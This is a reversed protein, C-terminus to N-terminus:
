GACSRDERPNGSPILSRYLTYLRQGFADFGFRDVVTRRISERDFSFGNLAIHEMASAIAATDDPPVLVGSSRDVFEVPATCNPAVVPLGASMAEAIVLGFSEHRSPYVFFDSAALLDAFQAKTFAGPLEVRGNLAPTTDVFTKIADREPGEGAITLTWGPLRTAISAFAQVVRLGGKYEELRGAFTMRRTAASPKSPPRFLDTDVPNYTVELRRPRIGAHEIRRRVDDSVACVCDVRELTRRTLFATTRRRLLKEFPGTHITLVVPVGLHKGLRAAPVGHFIAGHAHILDVDRLLPAAQGVRYLVELRGLRQRLAGAARLAPTCTVYEVGDDQSARRSFGRRGESGPLVVLVDCHRRIAEVYDRTFIGAIDGAARPFQEPVVAIRLRPGAVSVADSLV